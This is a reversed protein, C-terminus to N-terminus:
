TLFPGCFLSLNIPQIINTYIKYMMHGRLRDVKRQLSGTDSRTKGENTLLICSFHPLKQMNRFRLFLPFGRGSSRSNNDDTGGVDLLRHIEAVGRQVIMRDTDFILMSPKRILAKVHLLRLVISDDRVLISPYNRHQSGRGVLAAPTFPRLDRAHLDPALALIQQRTMDDNRQIASGPAASLRVTRYKTLTASAAAKTQLLRRWPSSRPRHPPAPRSTHSLALAGRRMAQM